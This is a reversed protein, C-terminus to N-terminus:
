IKAVDFDSFLKKMEIYTRHLLSEDHSAPKCKKIVPQGVGGDACLSKRSVPGPARFLSPM